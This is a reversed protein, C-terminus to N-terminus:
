EPFFQHVVLLFLSWAVPSASIVVACIALLKGASRRLRALIECAVIVWMMLAFKFGIAGEMGWAEIVAAAVPNVEMGGRALIKWTLMIDLSSIFVFWVYANQFHMEPSRIFGLPDRAFPAGCQPCKEPLKVDHADTAFGCKVCKGYKERRRRRIALPFAVAAWSVSSWFVVDGVIGGWLPRLPVLLMQGEVLGLSWSHRLHPLNEHGSPNDSARFWAESAFARFPWGALGTDLRAYPLPEDFDPAVRITHPARREVPELAPDNRFEILEGIPWSGDAAPRVIYWDSLVGRRVEVRSAGQVDISGFWVRSPEGWAGSGRTALALPLGWSIFVTLVVGAALFPIVLRTWSWATSMRGSDCPDMSVILRIDGPLAPPM